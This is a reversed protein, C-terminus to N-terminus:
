NLNSVQNSNSNSLRSFIFIFSILFERSFSFVMDAWGAWSSWALDRACASAGSSLHTGGTLPLKIEVRAGEGRERQGTPGNQRCWDGESARGKGEGGRPGM